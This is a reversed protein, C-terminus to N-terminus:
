TLGAPNETFYLITTSLTTFNGSINAFAQL